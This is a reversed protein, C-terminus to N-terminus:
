RLPVPGPVLERGGSRCRWGTGVSRLRRQWLQFLLQPVAAEVGDRDVHALRERSVLGEAGRPRGTACGVVCCEPGARCGRGRIGALGTMASRMPRARGGGTGRGSWGPSRGTCRPRGAPRSPDSPGPCCLPPAACMLRIEALQAVLRRFGAPGCRGTRSQRRAPRRRAARFRGCRRARAAVPRGPRRRAFWPDAGRPRSGSRRCRGSAVRRPRGRTSLVRLPVVRSSEVKRGIEPDDVVM